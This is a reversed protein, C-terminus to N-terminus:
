ERTRELQEDTVKRGRQKFDEFVESAWNQVADSETILEYEHAGKEPEFYGWAVGHEVLTFGFPYVDSEFLEMSGTELIERWKKTHQEVLSDLVESTLILESMKDEEVVYRHYQDVFLGSSVWSVGRVFEGEGVFSDFESFVGYLNTPTAGYIEADKLGCLAEQDMEFDSKTVVELFPELESRLDDVRGFTDLLSSAENYVLRGKPTVSYKSEAGESESTDMIWGREVLSEESGRGTDEDFQRYLTPKSVEFGWRGDGEVFVDRLERKSLPGNEHVEALVGIRIPTQPGGLHSLGNYQEEIVGRGNQESDFGESM